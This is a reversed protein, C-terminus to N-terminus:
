AKLKIIEKKGSKSSFVLEKVKFRRKNFTLDNTLNDCTNKSVYAVTIHPEFMPYPNSNTLLDKLENHLSILNPSFCEIKVVDFFANKFLSIQGLRIFFTRKKEIIKKIGQISQTHIGYLTTVHPEDERGFFPAEFLKDDTIHEEGWKIVSESLSHSLNIQISSFEYFESM